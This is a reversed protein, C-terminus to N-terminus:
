LYTEAVTLPKVNVPIQGFHWVASDKTVGMFQAAVDLSGSRMYMAFGAHHHIDTPTLKWQKLFRQLTARDNTGIDGPSSGKLRVAALARKVQESAEPLAKDIKALTANSIINDSYRPREQLLLPVSLFPRLDPISLGSREYHAIAKASLLSKTNSFISNASANGPTAKDPKVTKLGQRKAQFTRVLPATLTDITLRGISRVDLAESVLKECSIVYLPVSDVPLTRAVAFLAAFTPATVKPRHTGTRLAEFTEWDGVLASEIIPVAREKAQDIDTTGTSVSRRTGKVQVRVVWAANVSANRKYLQYSSGNVIVFNDKGM